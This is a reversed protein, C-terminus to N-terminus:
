DLKDAQEMALYCSECQAQWYIGEPLVYTNGCGCLEVKDMSDTTKENLPKKAMLM